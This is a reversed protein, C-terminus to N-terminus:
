RFIFFFRLVSIHVLGVEVSGFCVCSFRSFLYSCLLAFSVLVRCCGFCFCYMLAVAARTFAFCFRVSSDSVSGFCLFRSCGILVRVFFSLLKRRFMFLVCVAFPFAVAGACAVSLSVM